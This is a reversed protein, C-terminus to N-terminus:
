KKKKPGVLESLSDLFESELTEGMLFNMNQIIGMFVIGNATKMGISIMNSIQLGIIKIFAVIDTIFITKLTITKIEAILEEAFIRILFDDNYHLEVKSVLEHVFKYMSIIRKEEIITIFNDISDCGAEEVADTIEDHIMTLIYTMQKKTDPTITVFKKGKKKEDGLLEALTIIKEDDKKSENLKEIKGNNRDLIIKYIEQGVTTEIKKDKM